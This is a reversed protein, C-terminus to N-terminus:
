RIRFSKTMVPAPADGLFIEVQYDGTPWDKSNSIHFENTAPGSAEFNMSTDDVEATHDGRLYSWHARLRVAGAGTTEVSAFITDRVGFNEIPTVVKKDAGVANGLTVSSVAPQHTPATVSVPASPARKKCAFALLPILTLLLLRRM